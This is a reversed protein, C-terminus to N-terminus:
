DNASFGEELDARDFRGAVRERRKRQVQKFVQNMQQEPDLGLFMYLGAQIVDSTNFGTQQIKKAIDATVKSCVTVKKM